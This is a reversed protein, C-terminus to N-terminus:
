KRSTAEPLRAFTLPFPRGLVAAREKSASRSIVTSVGTENHKLLVWTNNIHKNSTHLSKHPSNPSRNAPAEDESNDFRTDPTTTPVSM